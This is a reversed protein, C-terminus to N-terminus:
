SELYMFGLDKSGLMYLKISLGTAKYLFSKLYCVFFSFFFFLYHKFNSKAVQICEFDFLVVGLRSFFSYTGM